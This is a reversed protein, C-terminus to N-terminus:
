FQNRPRNTGVIHGAFGIMGNCIFVRVQVSLQFHLCCYPQFHVQMAAIFEKLGLFGQRKVDAIAWVQKLDGRSLQSRSFFKVADPGTLRGDADTDAFEFWRKYLPEDQKSYNASRISLIDMETV